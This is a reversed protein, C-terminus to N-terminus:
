SYTQIKELGSQNVTCDTGKWPPEKVFREESFKLGNKTL